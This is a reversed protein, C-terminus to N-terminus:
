ALSSTLLAPAVANERCNAFSEQGALQCLASPFQRVARSDESMREPALSVIQMVRLMIAFLENALACEAECAMRLALRLLAM